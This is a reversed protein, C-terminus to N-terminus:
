CSPRARRSIPRASCRASCRSARRAAAGPQHHDQFRGAAARRHRFSRRRAARANTSAAPDAPRPDLHRQGAALRGSRNRQGRARGAPQDDQREAGHAHVGPERRVAQIRGHARHRRRRQRGIQCGAGPIAAPSSRPGNARCRSWRRSPWRRPSGKTELANLYTTFDLGLASFTTGFIGFSDIISGLQLLPRGSGAAGHWGPAPAGFPTSITAPRRATRVGLDDGVSRKVEAFKVELMVQQSAGMGIMNVVNAGAYTRALQVARDVAGADYAIGTLILSNGSTTADIQTGPVLRAVQERYGQADPGVAIDMVVLVRGGRDYLTLSTTGMTKGLVYVSRDTLPVIDAIEANGVMARAIPQDATVVQSKNVPVELTGGHLGDERYQAAAPSAASALLALPLAARM